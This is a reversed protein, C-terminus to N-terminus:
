NKSVDHNGYTIICSLKACGCVKIKMINYINPMIPEDEVIYINQHQM